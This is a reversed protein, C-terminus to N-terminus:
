LSVATSAQPKGQDHSTLPTTDMVLVGFMFSLLVGLLSMSFSRKLGRAQAPRRPAQAQHEAHAQDLQVFDSQPVPQPQQHEEGVPSSRQSRQQLGSRPYSVAPLQMSDQLLDQMGSFGPSCVCSLFSCTLLVCPFESRMVGAMHADTIHHAPLCVVVAAPVAKCAFPCVLLAVSSSQCCFTCVLLILVCRLPCKLLALMGLQLCLM